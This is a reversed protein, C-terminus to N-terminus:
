FARGCPTSYHATGQLKAAARMYAQM